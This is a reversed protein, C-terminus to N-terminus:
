LAPPIMLWRANSPGSQQVLVSTVRSSASRLSTLQASHSMQYVPSSYLTTFRAYCGQEWPGRRSPGRPELWQFRLQVYWHFDLCRWSRSCPPCGLIFPKILLFRICSNRSLNDSFIHVRCNWFTIHSISLVNNRVSFSDFRSKNSEKLVRLCIDM